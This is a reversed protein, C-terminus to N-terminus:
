LDTTVSLALSFLEGTLNPRQAGSPGTRWFLITQGCPEGFRGIADHFASHRRYRSADGGFTVRYPGPHSGQLSGSILSLVGFPLYPVRWVPNLHCFDNRRTGRKTGRQSLLDRSSEGSREAWLFCTEGGSAPPHPSLTFPHTTQVCDVITSSPM